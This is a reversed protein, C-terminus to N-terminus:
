EKKYAKEAKFNISQEAIKEAEEATFAYIELFAAVRKGIYVNVRFLKREQGTLQSITNSDM